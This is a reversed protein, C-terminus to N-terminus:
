LVVPVDAPQLPGNKAEYDAILRQLNDLLLKAQVWSMTVHATEEIVYKDPQVDVLEGFLIRMDYGTWGVRHHNAYTRFVGDEPEVFEVQREPGVEPPTGTQESM